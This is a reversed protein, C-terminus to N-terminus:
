YNSNRLDIIEVTDKGSSPNAVVVARTKSGGSTGRPNNSSVAKGSHSTPVVARSSASPTSTEEPVDELVHFSNVSVGPPSSVPTLSRGPKRSPVKEWGEDDSVIYESSVDSDAVKGPAGPTSVSYPFVTGSDNDFVKGDEIDESSAEGVSM